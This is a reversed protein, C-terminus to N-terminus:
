LEECLKLYHDSVQNRYKSSIPLSTGTALILSSPSLSRIYYFNVLFSQHVRIFSFTHNSTSRETSDLKGIFRYDKKTTHIIVDRRRSEFYVIESLPIKYHEQRFSFTFFQTNDMIRNLAASFYNEFQVLAIPKSLFRFPEVEFLQEFYTDYSSIYILLTPLKLSRVLRAAEIGNMEKMEIDLYILDYYNHSQIHQCLTKGDFFIDIKLLVHYKNCISNLLTEIETTIPINDDCIAIRLVIIVERKPSLHFLTRHTCFYCVLHQNDSESM